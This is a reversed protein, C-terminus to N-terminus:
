GTTIHSMAWEQALPLLWRAFFWRTLRTHPTKFVPCILDTGSYGRFYCRESDNELNICTHLHHSFWSEDGKQHISNTGKHLGARVIAGVQGILRGWQVGGDNHLLARLLQHIIPVGHAAVYYGM